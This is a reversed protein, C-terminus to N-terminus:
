LMHSLDNVITRLTSDNKNKISEYKQSEAPLLGASLHDLLISTKDYTDLGKDQLPKYDSSGFLTKFESEQYLLTIEQHNKANFEPIAVDLAKKIKTTAQALLIWYKGTGADIEGNGGIEGRIELYEETCKVLEEFSFYGIQSDNVSEPPTGGYVIPHSGEKPLVIDISESTNPANQVAALMVRQELSSDSKHHGFPGAFANATLGLALAFSLYKKM